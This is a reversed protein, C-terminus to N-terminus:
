NSAKVKLYEHDSDRCITSEHIQTKLIQLFVHSNGVRAGGLFSFFGASRFSLFEHHLEVRVSFGTRFVCLFPKAVGWCM